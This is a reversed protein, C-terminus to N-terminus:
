DKRARHLGIGGGLRVLIAETTLGADAQATAFEGATCWTELSRDIYGYAEPEGHWWRGVLRGAHRLYWRFLRRWWRREPLYFDLTVLRGGPRLVRRVEALGRDLHPVNRFGYGVTVAAVVGSRIPLALLDALVFRNPSQATPRNAAGIVNPRRGIQLMERSSDLGIVPLAWGSVRGVARGIQGTGCALDLVVAGPELDQAAWRAVREKWRRDMGFSFWRTFRDYSPAVTDFVATVYRRRGAPDRLHADPDL